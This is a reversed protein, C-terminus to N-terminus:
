LAIKEDDEGNASLNSGTKDFAAVFDYQACAREYGEGYWKTMIIRKRSASIRPGTWEAWNEEVQLWEDAVAEAETKILKGFGADVVQIEDTNNALLNWVDASCCDNMLKNFKPNCKSTQGNLNDCLVLHRQGDQLEAKPMNKMCHELVWENCLPGDFWAKPQFLVVVDPHYQEKEETTIRQGTGRFAMCLQPQGHRPLSAVKRNRILVQLTAWRHKDFGDNAAICVRKAGKVEYTQKPDFNGAPVQDLSWRNKYISWRPTYGVQDCHKQLMLRFVAFFRQLHHVRDGVPVKKMNSKRRLAIKFRRTFRALWGRRAKFGEAMPHPPDSAQVQIRMTRMIWRPGVRRSLKREELFKGHVQVEADIISGVKTGAFEVGGVM